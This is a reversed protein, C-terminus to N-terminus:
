LRCRHARDHGPPRLRSRELRGGALCRRQARRRRPRPRRARRGGLQQRARRRLRVAALRAAPRPGQVDRARRHAEPDLRRSRRGREAARGVSGRLLRHRPALARPRRRAHRPGLRAARRRPPVRRQLRHRGRPQGPRRHPLRPRGRPRRPRADVSVATGWSGAGIVAARRLPPLGGLWEWQLMVCPWIRDTVATALSRSPAQVQPFTLARGVRVRVKHPRVRWGKRIAETGIIAVPVVPAGTELALRGVGRRPRGLAGPRIRTGEPFILVADGRALIAKATDIM